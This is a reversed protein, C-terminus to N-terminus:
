SGRARGDTYGVHWGVGNTPSYFGGPLEVAQM